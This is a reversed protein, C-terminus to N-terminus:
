SIHHSVMLMALREVFNWPMQDFLFASPKKMGLLYYGGDMAPGLVYDHDDLAVFAQEVITAILSACDSGIILVKENEALAKSFAQEMRQGLDGSAQIKKIFQQDSWDDQEGISQSYFLYRQAEVSLAIARTHEMLALYIQLAKDDGVTKALRTKVKGKEPNKIFIILAKSSIAM